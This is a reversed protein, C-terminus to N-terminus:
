VYSVKGLVVAKKAGTASPINGPRRHWTQYALLAFAIAEKAQSPVGLDDSHRLKLGLPATQEELMRVLTKNRSGGGSVIHESYSGKPAVFTKIARAISGATLATATAILDEKAAGRRRGLLAKVYERGFEERGATKPPRRRFYPQRLLQELLPKLITGSAAVEGNRDYPKHFLAQMLQDIVMNGPGTDFAMVGEPGAAPAIATLNAIGGINQVIRGVRRDRFVAYDLIPVLPAGKGGAAMDAPRFDSVVPVGLRAAIVSGEGTQWTCAIKHGAYETAQGQHYITQGHCGALEIRARARGQTKHVAEAYLEGLLFNLRSLDAVSARGANMANLVVRRVQKPYAFHEHGLLAFQLDFGAGTIEVLAVDIGDASTGSMVGAVIM